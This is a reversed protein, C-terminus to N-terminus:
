EMFTEWLNKVKKRAMSLMNAVTKESIALQQAIEKNTYGNINLAIIKKEKEPLCCLLAKFNEDCLSQKVTNTVITPLFRKIEDVIRNRNKKTKIVDLSRNKVMVLLLAKINIEEEIFKQQRQVLPMAVIKEFCDAVVDEADQQCQVYKYAVLYFEPLWCKYVPIFAENNGSCFQKILFFSTDLARNL